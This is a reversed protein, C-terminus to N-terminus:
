RGSPARPWGQFRARRGRRWCARRRAPTAPGASRPRPPEPCAAAGRRRAPKESWGMPNVPLAPRVGPLFSDISRQLAHQRAAENRIGRAPVPRGRRFIVRCCNTTPFLSRRIVFVPMAPAGGCSLPRGPVMRRKPPAQFTFGSRSSACTRSARGHLVHGCRPGSRVARRGTRGSSPSRREAAVPSRKVAPPAQLGRRRPWVDARRREVRWWRLRAPKPACPSLM